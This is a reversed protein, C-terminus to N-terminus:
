TQPNSARMKPALQDGRIKATLAIVHQWYLLGTRQYM